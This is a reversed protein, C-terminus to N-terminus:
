IQGTFKLGHSKCPTSASANGSGPIDGMQPRMGYEREVFYGLADSLHTLTRDTKDLQPLTNGHSDARWQVRELDRILYRYGPDIFCRSTGHANRLMANVCNVWDKVVPARHTMHYDPKYRASARAFFNQVIRWDTRSSASSHRQHGAPDGYVEMRIQWEGWASLRRHLAECAESTNSNDPIVLEDLVEIVDRSKFPYANENVVEVGSRVQALISCM